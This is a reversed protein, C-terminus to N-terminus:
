PSSVSPQFRSSHPPAIAKHNPMQLSEADASHAHGNLEVARSVADRQYLDVWHALRNATTDSIDQESMRWRWNQGVTAPTNLRSHSGLGLVDQMPVIVTDAVSAMALRIFDWAVEDSNRNLYEDVYRRNEESQGDYWGQVTNNDHTGTYVVCNAVYNHPLFHLRRSEDRDFAFQLIRMGPFGHRDRLSEVEPTIVGLDEAIIPVHGNSQAIAAFIEDGPAVAWRGNIATEESAPISWCAQFGRFHDLRVVDVWELIGQFRRAWWAFGDIRMADWDYLPNGWRQGTESFYDPPVGAVETTQLNEDLLFQDPAAWVDASDMAVFIPVDGIIQIGRQNAYNKLQAWQDFFFFQLVKEVEIEAHYQQTWYQIAQPDRRAYAIDWFSNWASNECKSECGLRDYHRKLSVFIAYDDLWSQHQQCFQQFKLLRDAAAQSLFKAGAQRLIPLKWNSVAEYDVSKQDFCPPAEILKLCQTEEAVRQLDILLPNGAFASTASYPSNGFGTPNLPLVQWYSQKAKALYDIFRYAGQGLDGVGHSSPLSTPHLLIGSSRQSLVMSDNVLANKTNDHTM